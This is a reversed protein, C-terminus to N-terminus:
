LTGTLRILMRTKKGARAKFPVEIELDQWITRLQKCIGRTSTGESDDWITQLPKWFGRINYLRSEVWDWTDKAKGFIARPLFFVGVYNTVIIEFYNNSQFISLFICRCKLWQCIIIGFFVTHRNDQLTTLILTLDAPAINTFYNLKYQKLLM